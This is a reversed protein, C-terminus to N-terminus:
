KKSRGRTKEKRKKENKENKENKEAAAYFGMAFLLMAPLQKALNGQPGHFVLCTKIM